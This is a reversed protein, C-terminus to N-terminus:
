EDGTDAYDREGRLALMMEDTTKFLVKGRLRGEWKRLAEVPVRKRIVIRSDELEFEVQAGPRIGLADRMAKPITVQGKSTVTAM